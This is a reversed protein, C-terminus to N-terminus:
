MIKNFKFRLIISFSKRDARNKYLTRSDNAMILRKTKRFLKKKNLKEFIGTSLFNNPFNLSFFFLDTSKTLPKIM